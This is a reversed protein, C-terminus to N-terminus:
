KFEVETEEDGFYPYCYNSHYNIPDIYLMLETGLSREVFM